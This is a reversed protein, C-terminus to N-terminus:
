PLIVQDHYMASAMSSVRQARPFLTDILHPGSADVRREREAV